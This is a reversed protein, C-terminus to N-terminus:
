YIEWLKCTVKTKNIRGQSCIRHALILNSDLERLKGCIGLNRINTHILAKIDNPVGPDISEADSYCLFCCGVSSIATYLSHSEGNKLNFILFKWYKKQWQLIVDTSVCRGTM